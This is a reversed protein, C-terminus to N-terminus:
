PPKVGEATPLGLYDSNSTRTVFYGMQEMLQITHVIKARMEPRANDFNADGRIEVFLVPRQEVITKRAGLLVHEEFSEVDIKIVSVNRFGFSDITRLEAKDGGAGVSTGGENGETARNMEIVAPADGVAFRLPVANHLGNLQLNHVLERFIKRQPEFAYVRGQEGVAKAMPVTYTGIHAGVDLATTGPRLNKAVLNHIHPEWVLGGRLADKIVDAADDLYFNGLGEVRVIRYKEKPFQDLYRELDERDDLLRPALVEAPVENSAAQDPAAVEASRATAHDAQRLERRVDVVGRVVEVALLALLAALLWLSLRNRDLKM